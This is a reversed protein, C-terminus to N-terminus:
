AVDAWPAKQFHATLFDIFVRVKAPVHRANPFVAAVTLSLRWDPLVRVLRGARLSALTHFVPVFVLGLGHSAAEVLFHGNNAILTGTVEVVATREPGTLRWTDPVAHYAYLLCEHQSLDEPKTPTGRRALYSPSACVTRDVTTLRRAILSSDALEGIRIALDCGEALIDVKRDALVAEIVLGPYRAKFEALPAALYNVAFAMPLAIRLRGQLSTQLETAQAEAAKLAQMAESCQEFYARGPDTLTLQRTTRQLLRVGLRDELRGVLKSAYSTTVALRRAAATFSGEEVVVLFAEIEVLHSM